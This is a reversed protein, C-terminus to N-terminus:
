IRVLLHTVTRNFRERVYQIVLKSQHAPADTVIVADDFIDLITRYSPNDEFTLHYLNKLSPIPKVVKLAPLSGTPPGYWLM